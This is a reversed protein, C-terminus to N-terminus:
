KTSYLSTPQDLEIRYCSRWGEGGGASPRATLLALRVAPPRGRPGHRPHGGPPPPAQQRGEGRGPCGQGAPPGLVRHLLWPPQLPRGGQPCTPGRAAWRIEEHSRLLCQLGTRELFAATVDSGFLVGGGRPSARTGLGVPLPDSWLLDQLLPSDEPQIGRGRPLARIDALQLEPVSSLGGHVVLARESVLSAAPLWSFVEQFLDFLVPDRYKAMLETHFGDKLNM